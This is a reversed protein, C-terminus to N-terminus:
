DLYFGAVGLEKFRYHLERSNIRSPPGHVYVPLGIKTLRAHNKAFFDFPVTLAHLSAATSAIRSSLREPDSLDMKYVTLIIKEYGLGALTEVDKLSYAQPYLHRFLKTGKLARAMEELDYKTDTIIVASKHRAVTQELFALTIPTYAGNIAGPGHVTLRSRVFERYAPPVAGPYRTESQWLKWDHTGVWTGDATKAFDIEFVRAGAKLNSLVAEQSNTYSNGDIGGGAHAIVLCCRRSGIDHHYAVDEARSAHPTAAGLAAVFVLLRLM